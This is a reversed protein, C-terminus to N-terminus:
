IIRSLSKYFNYEINDLPRQIYELNIDSKM